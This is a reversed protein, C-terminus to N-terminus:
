PWTPKRVAGGKTRPFKKERTEKAEAGRQKTGLEAPRGERAPEVSGAGLQAEEGRAVKNEEAVASRAALAQAALGRAASRPTAGPPDCVMGALGTARAVPSAAPPEHEGASRPTEGTPDRIKGALDSARAAPSAAPGDGM